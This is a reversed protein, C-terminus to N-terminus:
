AAPPSAASGREVIAFPLQVQERADEAGRMVAVLHGVATRVMAAVPQRVTTLPPWTFRATPADDFGAVSLDQPVRLGREGAAAIVGAAMDDNAAFIATPRPDHALLVRGARMGADFTFDGPAVVPAWADPCEALADRYATQRVDAALHEAPGAVFAVRRHGLGTLHRTMALAGGYEDTAVTASREFAVGPAIRVYSMGCSDLADLVAISDAAPPFLLVGDIPMRSLQAPLDAALTPSQLDVAEIVLHYGLGQCAFLVRTELLAVFSPVYFDSDEASEFYTAAVIMAIAYGRSGPLARAAMNPRYDLEAIAQRVRDRLEPDVRPNDNLVRSVTKFSVNARKAIDIITPRRPVIAM